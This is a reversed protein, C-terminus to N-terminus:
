DDRNKFDQPLLEAAEKLWKRVTDPDISLGSLSLDSAIHATADNRNAKPNYGYQEMAMGIVMKLLTQRERTHLPKKSEKETKHGYPSPWGKIKEKQLEEIQLKLLAVKEETALEEIGKEKDSILKRKIEIARVAAEAVNQEDSMYQEYWDGHISVSREELWDALADMELYTEHENISDDPNRLIKATKLTGKEIGALFMGEFKSIHKALPADLTEDYISYFDDDDDIEPLDEEIQGDLCLVKAVLRSAQSVSLHFVGFDKLFFLDYNSIRDYFFRDHM